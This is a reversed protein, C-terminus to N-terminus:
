PNLYVERTYVYLPINLVPDMQRISLLAQTQETVKFPLTTSFDQPDTGNMPLVRLGTVQGDPLILELYAPQNNFPWFRGEVTVQGSSLKANEAPSYFVAREYIVNGPPTIETAGSSLLILQLSNLVRMRGQRDKSSVQLIAKEAAARIEFPFRYTAYAGSLLRPIRDITRELLRGDEGLLDLQIVDSEGSVIMLQISIPSVIKSMPGPSLFQVQALPIKPAPTATQTPAPTPPIPTLTPTDTPLATPTLAQSTAFAAQGTLAIATLVPDGLYPTPTSIAPSACGALLGSLSAILLIKRIM